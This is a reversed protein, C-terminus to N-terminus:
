GECHTGRIEGRRKLVKQLFTDINRLLIDEVIPCVHGGHRDGLSSLWKSCGLLEM